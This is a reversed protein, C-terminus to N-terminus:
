LCLIFRQLSAKCKKSTINIFKIGDGIVATGILLYKM